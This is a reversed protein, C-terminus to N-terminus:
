ELRPPAWKEIKPAWKEIKIEKRKQSWDERRQEEPSADQRSSQAHWNLSRVSVMGITLGYLSFM